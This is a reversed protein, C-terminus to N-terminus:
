FYKKEFRNGIQAAMYLSLLRLGNDSKELTQRRDMLMNTAFLVGCTVLVATSVLLAVQGRLSM